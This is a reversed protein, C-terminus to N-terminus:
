KVEILRIYEQLLAILQFMLARNASGSSTSRRTPSEPSPAPSEDVAVVNTHNVEIVQASVPLAFMVSVFM